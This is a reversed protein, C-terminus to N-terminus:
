TLSRLRVRLTEPQRLWEHLTEPHHFAFLRRSGRPRSRIRCGARDWAASEYHSVLRQEWHPWHEPLQAVYKASQGAVGSLTVGAKKAEIVGAAKGDIFLLYDCYGAPLHFKRVAVGLAAQRDFDSRDQIM